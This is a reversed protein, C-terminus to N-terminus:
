AVSIRAKTFELVKRLDNEVKEFEKYDDFIIKLTYETKEAQLEKEIEEVDEFQELDIGFDSMLYDSYQLDFLLADLKDNDWKGVASNLAINCAKEKEDDFNVVVCEIETAGQSCLIKYRQHGGIINGTKENWVIPSLMGFTDLSNKIAIYESDSEKLDKRPNYTSAKMKKVDVKKILIFIM